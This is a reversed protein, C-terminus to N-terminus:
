SVHFDTLYKLCENIRYNSKGNKSLLLFKKLDLNKINIEKNHLFYVLERLKYNGCLYNILINEYM